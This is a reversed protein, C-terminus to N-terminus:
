SSKPTVISSLESSEYKNRRIIINNSNEKIKKTLLHYNKKTLYKTLKELKNEKIVQIYLEKKEINIFIDRIKKPNHYICSFCPNDGSIYM